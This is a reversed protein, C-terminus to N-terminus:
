FQDDLLLTHHQPNAKATEPHTGTNDYLFAVEQGAPRSCAQRFSNQGKSNRPHTKSIGSYSYNPQEM